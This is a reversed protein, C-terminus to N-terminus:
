VWSSVTNQLAGVDDWKALSSGFACVDGRRVSGKDRVWQVDAVRVTDPDARAGEARRAKSRGLHREDLNLVLEDEPGLGPAAHGRDALRREAGGVATCGITLARRLSM